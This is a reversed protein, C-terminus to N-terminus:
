VAKGQVSINEIISVQNLTVAINNDVATALIRVYYSQLLDDFYAKDTDGIAVPNIIITGTIYNVSGIKSVVITDVGGESSVINLSGNAGDKFYCSDFSGYAFTTSTISNKVLANSYRLTAERKVGLEVYFRKALTLTTTNSTIGNDTNDIVALLNSYRLASNFSNLATNSYAVIRDKIATELEGALKSSRSKSYKFVTKTDIFVYDPDVLEPIVTIIGNTTLYDKVMAKDEKSIAVGANPQISVFVKGNSPPDNKQGGWASISKASPYVTRALHEYDAETVGRGAAEFSRVANYKISEISERKAGGLAPQNLGIFSLTTGEIEKLASFSGIGNAIDGSSILYEIKIISGVPPKFGLIGDGFSINSLESDDERVFYVQSNANLKLSNNYKSYHVFESGLAPINVSVRISTTDVNLNPISLGLSTVDNINDVTNPSNPSVVTFTHTLRKGEYITLDNVVYKGLKANYNAVVDDLTNFIFVEAGSSSGFMTGKPVIIASIPTGIPTYELQISAKASIASTPTYGLDKANNVVSNRRVATSLFSENGVMNLYFANMHTNYALTDLIVSLVSGNFDYDKLEDQGSLYDKLSQKISAFDPTALPVRESDYAM